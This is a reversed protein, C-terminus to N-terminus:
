ERERVAVESEPRIMQEREGQGYVVLPERRRGLDRLEVPANEFAHV